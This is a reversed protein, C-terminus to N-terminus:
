HRAICVNVYQPEIVVPIDHVEATVPIDHVEATVPIDPDDETDPSQVENVVIAGVENNCYRLLDDETHIDDFVEEPLDTSGLGCSAKQGYHVECPSMKLTSHYSSNKMFQVHPLAQTWKKDPNDRLWSQLQREVEKNASEVSGQSQPYRPRGRVLKMGPWQDAIEKIYQNVFEGGRDSQLIRPAGNSTLFINVLAGAVEKASKSKLPRLQVFKSFHDQYNMIYRFDSEVDAVVDQMDILDVQCRSNIDYSRIPKVVSPKMAKKKKKRECEVCMDVYLNIAEITINYYDDKVHKTLKDRGAHGKQLHISNIKEYINEDAVYYRIKSPDDKDKRILFDREGITVLQFRRMLNFEAHSRQSTKVKAIKLETIIEQYRKTSFSNHNNNKKASVIELWKALFVDQRSEAM